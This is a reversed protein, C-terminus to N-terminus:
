KAAGAGPYPNFWINRFRMPNGHDQLRLVGDQSQGSFEVNDQVLVGNHWVSMRQKRVVKDKELVAREIVIDYAQWEGPKRSANVLPPHQGYFAAAQGDPYTDNEYSDLVQVEPYGGVFVGSNGRGQGKGVVEAPTAWEIHLHGDGKLTDRTQLYGTKAVVEFYDNETKWRAEDSNTVPDPKDQKWAALGKGEFIALAGAPRKVPQGDYLPAVVEPRPREMSHVPWKGDPTLRTAPAPQPAQALGAATTGAFLVLSFAARALAPPPLRRPFTYMPLNPITPHNKPSVPNPGGPPFTRKVDPLM